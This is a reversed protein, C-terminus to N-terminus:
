LAEITLGRNDAALLHAEVPLGCAEFTAVASAQAEREQGPRPLAIVTSGSGSLFAGEVNPLSVLATFAQELRPELALRSGQHLRDQFPLAAGLHGARAIRVASLAARQLNFVAAELPVQTPLAARAESTRIEFGPVLVLYRRADLEIREHGRGTAALCFGGHVAPTANDPHGEMACAAECIRDRDVGSLGHQLAEAIALGAIRASASSGLGRALPIHNKFHLSVKPRPTGPPLHELLTRVVLNNEDLPVSAGEATVVLADAPRVEAEFHLDLALGFCDFGPGLNSTTAPVRVRFSTSM